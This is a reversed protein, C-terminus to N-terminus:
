IVLGKSSGNIFCSCYLSCISLTICGYFAIPCGVNNYEISISDHCWFGFTDKRTIPPIKWIWKGMKENLILVQITIELIWFMPGPGYQFIIAIRMLLKSKSGKILWVIMMVLNNGGLLQTIMIHPFEKFSKTAYLWLLAKIDDYGFWVFVM